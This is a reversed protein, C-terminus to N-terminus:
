EPCNYTSWAEAAEADCELMQYFSQTNGEEWSLTDQIVNGSCDTYSVSWTLIQGRPPMSVTVNTQTATSLNTSVDSASMFGAVGFAVVLLLKKM